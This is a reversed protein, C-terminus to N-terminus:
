QWISRRAFRAASGAVPKSTAHKGSLTTPPLAPGALTTPIRRILNWSGTGPIGAGPGLVESRTVQSTWSRVSTAGCPQATLRGQPLEVVFATTGPFRHNQWRTATGPYPGIRRLPLGALRAFRRQIRSDGGSRDVLRLPQHFWITVASPAAAVLTRAIRTEPESLRRPDPCTDPRRSPRAAGTGRSTATSTSATPTRGGACCRRRRSEAHAGAVARSRRGARVARCARVVAHRRDRRRPHRRRRAGQAAGAPDGVSRRSRADRCRVASACEGPRLPARRRAPPSDLRRRYVQMTAHGFDGHTQRALAPVRERHYPSALSENHGIM